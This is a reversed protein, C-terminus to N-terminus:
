RHMLFVLRLPLPARINSLPQTNPRLSTYGNDRSLVTDICRNLCRGQGEADLPQRLRSKFAAQDSM